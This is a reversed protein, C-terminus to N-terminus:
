ILQSTALLFKHKPGMKDQALAKLSFSVRYNNICTKKVSKKVLEVVLHQWHM